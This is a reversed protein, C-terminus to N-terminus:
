EKSIEYKGSSDIKINANLFRVKYGSEKLIHYAMEARVGTSCHAIIEKDKPIDQLKQPIDQTPINKAGKLMGQMAEDEDRVDLILKDPPLTEAISKFEEVSIEGPRPKSVYVIETKMEGTKIPLGAEKWATIGGGLISTNTYGWAKVIKFAETADKDDSSYLVIPAKKDAPFRDKYLVIKNLPISVAGPIHGRQADGPSRLDILVYPIDKDMNEKVYNITSVVLNGTKKWVPM